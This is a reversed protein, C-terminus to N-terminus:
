SGVSALSRAMARALSLRAYHLDKWHKIICSNGSPTLSHKNADREGGINELADKSIAIGDIICDAIRHSRSQRVRERRQLGMAHVRIKNRNIYGDM